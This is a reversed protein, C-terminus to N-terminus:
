WVCTKNHTRSKVHYGRSNGLILPDFISGLDLYTNKRNIEFLQHCMISSLPGACLVFVRDELDKKILWEKIDNLYKDWNEIVDGVFFIHEPDFPLNKIHDKSRENLVCVVSKRSLVKYLKEITSQYNSNVFVNSWTLNSEDQGSEHKMLEHNEDGVCCRCAIGVFYDPDKFVFSDRLANSFKEKNKDEKDFIWGDAGKINNKRMIHMEGDGYRSLSIKKGSDIMEIFKSFDLDFKKM